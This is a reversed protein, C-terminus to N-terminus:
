AGRRRRRALAALGLVLLGLPALGGVRNNGLMGAKQTVTITQEALNESTAGTSDTVTVRARYVGPASYTHSVVAAGGALPGTYPTPNAGAEDGFLISYSALTAGDPPTGSITFTVPLPATGESVSATLSALLPQVAVCIETGRVTYDSPGATDRSTASQSGV